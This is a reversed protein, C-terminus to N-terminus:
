AIHGQLPGLNCFLELFKECIPSGRGKNPLDYLSGRGKYYLIM